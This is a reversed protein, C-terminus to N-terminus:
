WGEFLGGDFWDWLVFVAVRTDRHETDNLPIRVAINGQVHQRTNLTVHLQPALDWHTTAGDELARSGLVEVMPSWARGYDGSVFTRGLAGRWFAENGVRDTDVPFEGGAQVQLFAAAPLLQGFTVFPEFITVGSSLGDGEDGLPLIVEGTLSAISGSSLSHFVVHKVGVAVDEMGGTWGGGASAPREFTSFPVVVEWMSRKGFRQEWIFENSFGAPGEVPSIVTWVAEDEPYAKETYMARPLNLEGRPWDDDQCFTYIHDVAAQLEATTLAEGFAPMTHHFARTPGGEAAVGVWDAAPERSAFNCDTFDPLPADFGVQTRAAGAGDLGHCTACNTEYIARGTRDPDPEPDVPSATVARTGLIGLMSAAALAIPLVTTIAEGRARM